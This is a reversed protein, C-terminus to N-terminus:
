EIENNKDNKETIIKLNQKIKNKEIRYLFHISRDFEVWLLASKPNRQCSM